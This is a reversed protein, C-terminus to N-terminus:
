AKCLGCSKRFLQVAVVERRRERNARHFVRLHQVLNHLFLAINVADLPQRAIELFFATVLTGYLQRM